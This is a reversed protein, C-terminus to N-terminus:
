GLVTVLREFPLNIDQGVDPTAFIISFRGSEWTLIEEFAKIGSLDNLQARIVEGDAFYISGTEQTHSTIKLIASQRTLHLLYTIDMVELFYEERSDFECRSTFAELLAAKNLPNEIFCLTSQNLRKQPLQPLASETAVSIHLQPNKNKAEVILELAKAGLSNLDAFLIDTWDEQHELIKLADEVTPASIVDYRDALLEKIRESKEESIVALVKHKKVLVPESSVIFDGTTWQILENLANKDAIEGYFVTQIEGDKLNIFGCEENKNLQISGTIEKEECFRLLEILNKESLKGQLLIKKNEAVM